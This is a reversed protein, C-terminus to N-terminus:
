LLKNTLQKIVALKENITTEYNVRQSEITAILIKIEVDKALRLQEIDRNLGEVQEYHSKTVSATNEQHRREQAHLKDAFAQKEANWLGLM